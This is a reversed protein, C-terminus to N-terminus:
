MEDKWFWRLCIKCQTQEKGQREMKEAWDCWALYGLQQPKHKKCPMAAFVTNTSRVKM